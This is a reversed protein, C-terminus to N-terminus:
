TFYFVTLLGLLAYFLVATFEQFFETRATPSARRFASCFAASACLGHTAALLVLLVLASLFSLSAIGSTPLLAFAQYWDMVAQQAYVGFAFLGIPLVIWGLGSASLLLLVAFFLVFTLRSAALPPLSLLGYFAALAGFAFFVFSVLREPIRISRGSRLFVAASM